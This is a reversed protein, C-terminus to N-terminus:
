LYNDNHQRLTGTTNEFLGTATIAHFLFQTASGRAVMPNIRSAPIKNEPFMTRVGNALTDPDFIGNPTTKSFDGNRQEATPVLVSTLGAAAQRVRLGEYSFFTFLKEKVIPGGFTAGFQNRQYKPLKSQNLNFPRADFNRNRLFEFLSGHFENGGSKTVVNVTSRGYEASVMASQVQFEAIGDVSPSYNLTSYDLDTNMAGDLLFM